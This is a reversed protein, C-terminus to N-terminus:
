RTVVIITVLASLVQAAVSLVGAINSPPEQGVRAPVFVVAGSKPRPVDDALIARRKVAERKGNPQTVYARKNDGGQSYGGASNVYWDLSKGPTYAVAGPSNVGGEVMVVPNYEPINISDGAALIVNDAFKENKLVKPLDIGVRESFGRPLTDPTRSATESIPAPRGNAPRRGPSYTRYFQVGGPYAQETVGGAREILDSLRETKSRLAYRGPHQVQGTVYVLRPLEWGPRRRILVNDYPELPLDPIGGGTPAGGVEGKTSAPRAAAASDLRVTISRALVGPDQSMDRRAIEAQSLDADETVGDALLVVDRMTM